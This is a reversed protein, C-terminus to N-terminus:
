ATLEEHRMLYIARAQRWTIEGQWYDPTVIRKPIGLLDWDEGRAEAWGRGQSPMLKRAELILTWRDAAKMLLEDEDGVTPLDLAAAIAADMRDTLKAYLRGMLKKWPRPLDGLWAEADDHHLGILQQRRDGGLQEVRRSVFVAHQAVSYPYRASGGWRNVQALKHAIDELAIPDKVNTPASPMKINVFRGSPTEVENERPYYVGM